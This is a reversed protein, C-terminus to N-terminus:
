VGPRFDVDLFRGARGGAAAMLGQSLDPSPMAGSRSPRWSPVAVKVTDGQGAVFFGLRNLVGRVEALRADLGALRRLEALPFRRQELCRILEVGVAGTAGVIAVVPGAPLPRASM